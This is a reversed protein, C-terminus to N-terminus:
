FGITTFVWGFTWLLVGGAIAIGAMRPSVPPEYGHRDTFVLLTGLAIGAFFLTFGALHILDLVSVIPIGVTM